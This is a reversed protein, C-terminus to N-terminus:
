SVESVGLLHLFMGACLKCLHKEHLFMGACLKCLHEEFEKTSFLILSFNQVSLGLSLEYDLSEHFM